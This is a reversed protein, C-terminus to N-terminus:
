GATSAGKDAYMRQDALELLEAANGAEGPYFAVGISARVMLENAGVPLPKAIRQRLRGLLHDLLAEDADEVIMAFEDGAWRAVTDGVRLEERIRAAVARLVSDGVRHGYRDNIPKFGDLDMFLVAIQGSPARSHRRFAQELRDDFLRRNPLDTLSDFGAHRALESRQRLLLGVGLGALLSLMWGSARIVWLLPWSPPTKDRVAYLWKGSPVQAELILASRDAFLEPRGWLIGGGLGTPDVSRVAFEFRESDLGSFAAQQFSQIDIVTALLGWYHDKIYIPTRYILGTGGQLLTVPGTLVLKRSEVALKVAPWQDAIDRYDRGLVAQNGTLPYVYAVRYGVAISFNRIHRGSAYVAAMIDNIEEPNIQEHRVVLYGVFGSALYLVSNLERDARARLESAFALTTAKRESAIEDARFRLLVETLGGLCVLVLLAAGLAFRMSTSIEHLQWALRDVISAMTESSAGSTRDGPVSM